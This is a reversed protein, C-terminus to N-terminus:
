GISIDNAKFDSAKLVTRIYSSGSLLISVNQYLVPKRRVSGLVCPWLVYCLLM